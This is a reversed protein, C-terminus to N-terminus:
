VILLIIEGIAMSISTYGRRNLLGNLYESQAQNTKIQYENLVLKLLRKSLKSRKSARIQHTKLDSLYKNLLHHRKITIANLAQEFYLILLRVDSIKHAKKAQIAQIGKTIWGYRLQFSGHRGITFVTETGNTRKVFHEAFRSFVYKM